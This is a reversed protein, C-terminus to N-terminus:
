QRSQTGIIAGETMDRQARLQQQLTELEEVRAEYAAIEDKLKQRERREGIKQWMEGGFMWDSSFPLNLGTAGLGGVKDKKQEEILMRLREKVAEIQAKADPISEIESPEQETAAFGGSDLEDQIAPSLKNMQELQFSLDSKLRRLKNRHAQEPTLKEVSAGAEAGAEAVGRQPLANRLLYNLREEVLRDREALTIPRKKKPDKEDDVESQHSEVFEEARELLRLLDISDELKINGNMQRSWTRGDKDTWSMGLGQGKPFQSRKFKKVGSENAFVQKLYDDREAADIRGDRFAKNIADVNAEYAADAEEQERTKEWDYQEQEIRLKDAREKEEWLYKDKELESKYGAKEKELESDYGALREDRLAEIVALQSERRTKIGALQDERAARIGALQDERDARIDAAAEQRERGAAFSAAQRRAAELRRAQELLVRTGLASRQSRSRERGGAFAGALGTAQSGHKVEIPM